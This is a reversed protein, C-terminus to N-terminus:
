KWSSDRVRSSMTSQAQPTSRPMIKQLWCYIGFLILTAPYAVLDQGNITTGGTPSYVAPLNFRALPGPFGRPGQVLVFLVTLGLVFAPRTWRPKGSLARGLHPWLNLFPIVLFALYYPKFTPLLSPTLCIVGCLEIDSFEPKGFSSFRAAVIGGIVYAASLALTGGSTAPLYNGSWFAHVTVMFSGLSYTSFLVRAHSSRYGRIWEVWGHIGTYLSTMLLLLVSSLIVSIAAVYLPRRWDREEPGWLWNKIAAGVLALGVIYPFVKIQGSLAFATGALIALPMWDRSEPFDRVVSEGPAGVEGADRMRKAGRGAAQASRLSQRFLFVGLAIFFIYLYEIQGIRLSFHMESSFTFLLATGIVSAIAQRWPVAGERWTLLFFSASFGLFYLAFYTRLYFYYDGEWVFPLYLVLNIPASVFPLSDLNQPLHLISRARESSFFRDLAAKDYPNVGTSFALPAVFDHLGDHSEVSALDSSKYSSFALAASVLIAVPIVWRLWRQVPGRVEGSTQGSIATSSAIRNFPAFDLLKPASM